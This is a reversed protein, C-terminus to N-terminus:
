EDPPLRQLSGLVTAARDVAARVENVIQGPEREERVEAPGLQLLKGVGHLFLDERHALAHQSSSQASRAEEDDELPLGGDLDVALFPPREAWSIEESFRGHQGTLRGARVDDRRAKQPAYDDGARVELPEQEVPRLQHKAEKPGLRM